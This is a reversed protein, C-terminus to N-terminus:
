VRDQWAGAALCLVGPGRILASGDRRVSLEADCLLASKERCCSGMGRLSKMLTEM